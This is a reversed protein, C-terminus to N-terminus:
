FKRIGYDPGEHSAESVPLLVTAGATPAPAYDDIM